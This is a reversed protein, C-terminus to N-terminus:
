STKAKAAAVERALEDSSKYHPVRDLRRRARQWTSNSGEVESKWYQDALAVNAPTDLEFASKSAEDAFIFLRGDIVRWVRPDGGDPIAFVMRTADYGHYAPQFKRPNQEFLSRNAASAFHYAVGEHTSRFEARGQVAQGQTFYAVVDHGQLLLRSEDGDRVANVPRMPSSPNQALMANCGGLLAVVLLSAAGQWRPVLTKL